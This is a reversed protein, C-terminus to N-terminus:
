FGAARDVSTEATGDVTESSTGESREVTESSDLCLDELGLDLVGVGSGDTVPRDSPVGRQEDARGTNPDADLQGRVPDETEEAEEYDFLVRGFLPGGVGDEPYEQVDGPKINGNEDVFIDFPTVSKQTPDFAVSSMWSETVKVQPAHRLCCIGSDKQGFGILSWACENSKLRYIM